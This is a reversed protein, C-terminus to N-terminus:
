FSSNRGGLVRFLVELDKRSRMSSVSTSFNGFMMKVNYKKCLKVNFMIRGLLKGKNGSGLIDNFSFGVVKGREAAIKCTVQDLGGRVFHVSDRANIGEMGYVLDVNSKELAFRLMEESGTKFITFKGKAKNIEKLLEKKSEAEVLVIEKGLCMCSKFGLSASKELLESSEKMLLINKM